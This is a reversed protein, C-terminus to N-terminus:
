GYQVRRKERQLQEMLERLKQFSIETAKEVEQRDANGNIVINPNFTINIPQPQSESRGQPRVLERIREVFTEKQTSQPVNIDPLAPTQVKPDFLATVAPTKAMAQISQSIKVPPTDAKPVNFLPNFVPSINPTAATAQIVPSVAPAVANFVQRLVPTIEPAKVMATFIPKLVPSAPNVIVDPVAAVAKVFTKVIPSDAVTRIINRVVPPAQLIPKSEPIRIVPAPITMDAQQVNIAPQKVVAPPVTVFPASAMANIIPNFVPSVEPLKPTAMVPRIEPAVTAPPINPMAVAPAKVNVTPTEAKANIIPSFQPTVNVVPQLPNGMIQNTKALLGINRKTPTHPIASEGSEEAFTTLFAGKGYIGGSANKSVSALTARGNRARHSTASSEDLRKFDGTSEVKVPGLGLLEKAKDVFSCILNYPALLVSAITEFVNAIIPCSTKFEGWMKNWRDRITGVHDYVFKCAAALAVLAVITAGIPNALLATNLLWTKAAAINAM